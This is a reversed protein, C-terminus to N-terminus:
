EAIGESPEAIGESSGRVKEEIVRLEHKVRECQERTGRVHLTGNGDPGKRFSVDARSAARIASINEGRWGILKGIFSKEIAIDLSETPEVAASARPAAPPSTPGPAPSPAVTPEPALMPLGGLGRGTPSLAVGASVGPSRPSGVAAHGAPSPAGLQAATLQPPATPADDSTHSFESSRRVVAAEEGTAVGAIVKLVRQQHEFLQESSTPALALSSPSADALSLPVLEGLGPLSDLSVDTLEAPPGCGHEPTPSTPPHAPSQRPSPPLPTHRPSGRAPTPEGAAAQIRGRPHLGRALGGNQWASGSLPASIGLPATHSGEGTMPAASGAVIKAVEASSRRGSGAVHCSRAGAVAAGVQSGLSEGAVLASPRARRSLARAPAISAAIWYRRSADYWAISRSPMRESSASCGSSGSAGTTMRPTGYAGGPALASAIGATSPATPRLTHSDYRRPKGGMSPVASVLSAPHPHM